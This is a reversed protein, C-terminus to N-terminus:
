RLKPNHRQHLSESRHRINFSSMKRGVGRPNFRGRSSDCRGSAIKRLLADRRAQLRERPVAGAQPLKRKIVRVAHTFSPRDLISSDLAQAVRGWAEVAHNRALKVSAESRLARQPTRVRGAEGARVRWLQKPAKAMGGRRRGPQLPM